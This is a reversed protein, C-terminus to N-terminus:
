VICTPPSSVSKISDKKATTITAGDPGLAKKFVEIQFDDMRNILVNIIPDDLIRNKSYIEQIMQFQDRALKYPREFGQIEIDHFESNPLMFSYASSM